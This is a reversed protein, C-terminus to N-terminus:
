GEAVGFFRRVPLVFRDVQELCSVPEEEVPAVPSGVHHAFGAAFTRRWVELSCGSAIDVLDRELGVEAAEHAVRELECGEGAIEDHRAQACTSHCGRFGASALGTSVGTAETPYHALEIAGLVANRDPTYPLM